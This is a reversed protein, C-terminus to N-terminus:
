RFKYEWVHWPAGEKGDTLITVKAAAGNTSVGNKRLWTEVLMGTRERMESDAGPNAAAALSVPDQNRLGTASLERMDLVHPM